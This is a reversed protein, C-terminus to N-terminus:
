WIDRVRRNINQGQKKYKEKMKEPNNTRYKKESIRQKEKTWNNKPLCEICMHSMNDQSKRNIKFGILSKEVNCKSCKKITLENISIINNEAKEKKDKDNDNLRRCLKCYLSLGDKTLKNKSFESILKTEKCRTCSKEDPYEIIRDKRKNMLEKQALLKCKKCSSSYGSSNFSDKFFYSVNFTESCKSCKKTESM